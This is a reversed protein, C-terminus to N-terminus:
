DVNASKFMRNFRLNKFSFRSNKLSFWIFLPKGVIHDHPVFGWMRSDESNHRNDGMAWFYDQKFTYSDAPSGNILIQGNKLELENQEYVSIVRRYLALNDLTLNVTVGAKPIWIPGYNDVSWGKTINPDHPFLKIPESSQTHYDLKINEDMALMKERQQETLHFGYLQGSSGVIDSDTDGIGWDKLKNMNVSNPPITVRNLFQMEKPNIGKEGNIYIQRNVIRLTDGPVAVCRKIYHDKKDIPRVVFEKNQVKSRLERDISLFERNRRAQGVTYSRSSTVYVSDGVPWNFVIPKNRAVSELEPLRHYKLSPKKLYSEKGIGPIRNHLLPIMAITMPTRIGYSAKSVFLFDGVMLSGEMSPTPIVFAEILFMRIFAAAFVAFVISEIWERFISKSYPSKSLLRELQPKDGNKRAVKLDNLYATEKPYNAGTYKANDNTALWAFAAPAYIVAAASHGLKYKSFSRVLNVAMGAFIFINVIPVLLLLPWWAPRGIIKAWEIFNKGPILGNIAPIDAKPFLLYLSISLLVYSILFFLLISM